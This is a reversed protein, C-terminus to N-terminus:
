PLLRRQVGRDPVSNPPSNRPDSLYLILDSLMVDSKTLNTGSSCIAANRFDNSGGQSKPVIHDVHGIPPAIVAGPYSNNIIWQRILAFSLPGSNFRQELNRIEVPDLSVTPTVRWSM